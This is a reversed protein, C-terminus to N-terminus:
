CILHILKDAKVGWTYIQYGVASKLLFFTSKDYCAISCVYGLILKRPLCVSDNSEFGLQGDSTSGIGYMENHETLIVIHHCGCSISKVNIKESYQIKQPIITHCRNLLGWVWINDDKTIAIRTNGGSSILEVNPLKLEQPTCKNITDGLGLQTERLIGGLFM